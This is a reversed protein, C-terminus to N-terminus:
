ENILRIAEDNFSTNDDKRKTIDFQLYANGIQHYNNKEGIIFEVNQEPDDLITEQRHYVKSFARKIISNDIPDNDLM